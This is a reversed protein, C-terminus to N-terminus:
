TRLFGNDFSREIIDLRNGARIQLANAAAETDSFFKNWSKGAAPNRPRRQTL